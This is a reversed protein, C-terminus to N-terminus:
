FTNYGDITEGQNEQKLKEIIDDPFHNPFYIECFAYLPMTPSPYIGAEVFHELVAITVVNNKIKLETM